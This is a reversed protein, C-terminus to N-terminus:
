VFNPFREFRFRDTVITGAALDRHVFVVMGGFVDVDALRAGIALELNEFGKVLDQALREEELAKIVLKRRQIFLARSRQDPASRITLQNLPASCTAGGRM